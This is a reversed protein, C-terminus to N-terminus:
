RFEKLIKILDIDLEDIFQIDTKACKTDTSSLERYSFNYLNPNFLDIHLVNYTRNFFVIQYQFIASGYSHIEINDCRYFLLRELFKILFQTLNNNDMQKIERIDFLKNDPDICYYRDDLINNGLECLSPTINNDTM